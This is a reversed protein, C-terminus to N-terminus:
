YIFKVLRQITVPQRKGAAFLLLFAIPIPADCVCFHHIKTAKGTLNMGQKKAQM